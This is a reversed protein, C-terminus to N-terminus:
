VVGRWLKLTEKILNQMLPEEWATHMWFLLSDNRGLSVLLCTCYKGTPYCQSDCRDWIFSSKDDLVFSVFFKFLEVHAQQLALYLEDKKKRKTIQKGGSNRGTDPGYKWIHLVVPLRYGFNDINWETSTSYCCLPFKIESALM